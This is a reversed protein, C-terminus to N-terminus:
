PKKKGSFLMAKIMNEGTKTRYQWIKRLKARAIRFSHLSM